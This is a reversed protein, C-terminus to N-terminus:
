DPSQLLAIVKEAEDLMPQPWNFQERVWAIDAHNADQDVLTQWLARAEDVEGLQYHTLALGGAVGAEEQGLDRATQFHTQAQAYDGAMYCIDGRGTETLGRIWREPQADLPEALALDYDELAGEHDGLLFRAFGRNYLAPARGGPTVNELTLVSSCDDIAKDYDGLNICACARNILALPHNPQLALAQTCDAAANESQRANLFVQARFLYSEPDLPRLEVLRNFDAVAGEVDGTTSRINGRWKLLHTNRPLLRLSRNLHKLAVDNRQQSALFAPAFYVYVWSVIVLSTLLLWILGLDANEGDAILAIGAFPYMLVLPGWIIVWFIYNITKRAEPTSAKQEVRGFFVWGFASVLLLLTAVKWLSASTVSIVFALIWLGLPIMLLSEKKFEEKTRTSNITAEQATAHDGVELAQKRRATYRRRRTTYRQWFLGFYVLLVLGFLIVVPM